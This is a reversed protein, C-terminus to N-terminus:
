RRQRQRQRRRSRNNGGQRSRRFQRSRNNGGQRSRRFQRSRRYGGVTAPGSIEDGMLAGSPYDPM